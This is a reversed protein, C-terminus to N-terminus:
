FFLIVGSSFGCHSSSSPRSSKDGTTVPKVDLPASSSDSPLPPSIGGAGGEGVGRPRTAEGEDTSLISQASSYIVLSILNFKILGPEPATALLIMVM